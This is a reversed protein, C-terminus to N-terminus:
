GNYIKMKKRRSIFYGSVFLILIGSIIFIFWASTKQKLIIPSIDGMIVLGAWYQPELMRGGTNQLYRLKAQRLAEDKPLGNILNNYFDELLIASAQEDIKWLGTLISQSGAYNFAHALSIMGEGEQYGPKGTECGILTTLNSSLDCNYIEDVFLSNDEDEASSNKAFILRSFEPYDNNSEAHTGIHIIQHNGANTKFSAVTSQELLFAKGGFIGKLKNAAAVSFPQPLLAFYSKDMEMSDKMSSGYIEKQEDFFGPAFAVFNNNLDSTKSKQDLLLLSYQYSITYNALLSITALEKFTGIKQPTLIEFNLNFLIGDPIVIVKNHHINKSLPLWLQQHLSYLIDSTKEITLGPEALSSINEAIGEKELPYIQKMKEDVVLAFLEEGIFFYRILSTNDPIAQQIHDTNKFISAYRMAYYGPYELRLKGLYLNWEEVAKFYDTIKEEQTEDGKLAESIAAKLQKEYDQTQIPLHAFQLSDNKDLRSRIRNYLGSEHIGMLRDLYSKDGTLKYLEYSLKKVFELLDSHDAMVLEIDKVDTLVSKRRELIILAANLENFLPTLHSGDKKPLLQYQAQTKLLVAKPKKLEMRVSDLLNNSSHMISTLVELSENSYSLAKRFKGSLYYVESVNLLQQFALLTHAGQTEVVYNYAKQAKAIATKSVGEEAYFLAANSLFELYINDYEGQLSEEYLSDAMEYFYTAQSTHQTENYLLALTNCADAQWFLYDGGSTSIKKLGGNLFLISKDYDRIAFYLQGLLIMSIFIAPDDTTLYKQKQHYSFELLERAKKMDGLEKYIGALNDMAEFQFSTVSNKKSSSANSALFNKLNNITSKLAAIAKTSNGQLQYLGSLNNRIIAPRYFQNVPNKPTKELTLLALNYYYLASDTKSSYWMASGMGNYTIYLCEFDPHNDRSLLILAKRSHSISLNLDGMRQAYTSLNNEVQALDSGKQEPMLLTYKHAQQNALYGLNNLGASGYFEGAEIYTRRITAPNSALGKIKETFLGVEKIAREKGSKILNIRGVYFIYNVLSDAQENAAYSDVISQLLSDARDIRNEAIAKDMEAIVKSQRHAAFTIWTFVSIGLIYRVLQKLM